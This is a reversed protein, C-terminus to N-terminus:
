CRLAFRQRAAEMFVLGAAVSANLAETRGYTPISIHFDANESVLRKVGKGESGIIIGFGDTFDANYYAQEATSSTSYVWINEHKLTKILQSLNPAESVLLHAAAGASSKFVTANIPASNHKSIVLGHLGACEASRIIAGLNHPDQIGDLIGIMPKQGLRSARELITHLDVKAFQGSGVQAVVGQHRDVPSMKDLRVKRVRKVSIGLGEAARVIEDIVQDRASDQILIENLIAGARLSELVPKRGVILRPM